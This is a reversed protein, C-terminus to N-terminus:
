GNALEVGAGREGSLERYKAYSAQAASRYGLTDYIRGIELYMKPYSSGIRLAEHFHTLAGRTNGQAVLVRGLNYHALASVEAYEPAYELAFRCDQAAAEYDGM